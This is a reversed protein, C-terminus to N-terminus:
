ILSGSKITSILARLRDNSSWEQATPIMKPLEGIPMEGVDGYPHIDLLKVDVDFSSLLAAIKQSKQIADPDLALIVPTKNKAIRQFLAHAESL